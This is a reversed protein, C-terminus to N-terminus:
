AAAIKLGNENNSSKGKSEGEIRMPIMTKFVDRMIFPKFYLNVERDIAQSQELVNWRLSSEPSTVGGEKLKFTMFQTKHSKDILVLLFVHASNTNSKLPLPVKHSNGEKFNTTLAFRTCASWVYPSQYTDLGYIWVGSVQKLYTEPDNPMLPVVRNKEDLSIFGSYV